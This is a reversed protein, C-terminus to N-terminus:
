NCYFITAPYFKLLNATCQWIQWFKISGFNQAVYVSHVHNKILSTHVYTRVECHIQSKPVNLSRAIYGDENEAENYCLGTIPDPLSIHCLNLDQDLEIFDRLFKICNWAVPNIQMNCLFTVFVFLVSSLMSSLMSTTSIM